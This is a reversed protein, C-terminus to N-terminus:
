RNTTREGASRICITSLRFNASTRRSASCWNPTEAMYRSSLMRTPVPTNLLSLWNSGLVPRNTTGPWPENRLTRVSKPVSSTSANM